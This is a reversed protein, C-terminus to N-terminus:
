LLGAREAAEAVGGGSWVDSKLVHKASAKVEEPAQGMAFSAGARQLMPVDNFWDGVAVIEDTSIGYHAALWEIATGKDIRAARVILGWLGNLDQRQIPFYASQLRELHQEKIFSHVAEVQLKEGLAVMAAIPRQEHWHGHDLVSAIQETEGSWTTVYPLYHAGDRDFYVRDSSFVFTAPGHQELVTLVAAVGELALPSSALERGTVGDVIHSGDICGLPQGIGLQAAIARTGSYM